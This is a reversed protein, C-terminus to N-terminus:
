LLASTVGLTGEMPPRREAVLTEFAVLFRDPEAPSVLTAPRGPGVLVVARRGNRGFSWFGLVVEEMRAGRLGFMRSGSVVPFWPFVVRRPLADVYDGLRLRVPRGVRRRVELVAGHLPDRAVVYGIPMRAVALYGIVVGLVAFGAGRAAEGWAGSGLSAAAQLGGAVVLIALVFMLLVVLAWTVADSGAAPFLTRDPLSQPVETEDVRGGSPASSV